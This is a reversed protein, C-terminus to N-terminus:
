RSSLFCAGLVFAVVVVILLGVAGFFIGLGKIISGVVNDKNKKPPKEEPKDSSM